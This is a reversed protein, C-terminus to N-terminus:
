NRRSKTLRVFGASFSRAHVYECALRSESSKVASVNSPPCSLFVEKRANKNYHLRKVVRDFVHVIRHDGIFFAFCCCVPAYLACIFIVFITKFSYHTSFLRTFFM